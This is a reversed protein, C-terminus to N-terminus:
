LSYPTMGFSNMLSQQMFPSMSNGVNMAGQATVPGWGNALAGMQAANATGTVPAAGLGSLGTLLGGAGLLQGLAQLGQESGQAQQLQAPLVNAWGQAENGIVGLQSGAQQDKLRQQLTYNSYGGLDSAAKNSMATKAGEAMTNVNGFSPISSSLPVQQANQILGALQQQGQGIQQNAAQPISQQLSNNFVGQAKQQFGQNRAMEQNTLDNMKGRVQNNAYMNVGAGAAALGLGAITGCGM